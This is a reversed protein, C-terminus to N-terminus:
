VAQLPPSRGAEFPAIREILTALPAFLFSVFFFIPVVAPVPCVWPTDMTEYLRVLNDTNSHKGPHRSDHQSSLDEIRVIDDTASIYPFLAAIILGVGVIHLWAPAHREEPRQRFAAQATCALAAVGLLLWTLNLATEFQV